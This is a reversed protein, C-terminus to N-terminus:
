IKSGIDKSSRTRIRLDRITEPDFGALRPLDTIHTRSLRETLRSLLLYRIRPHNMLRKLNAAPVELIESEKEAVVDATREIGMLAAIEGFFDGPLM